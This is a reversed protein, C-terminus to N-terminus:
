AGVNPLRRNYLFRIAMAAVHLMETDLKKDLDFLIDLDEQDPNGAFCEIHEIRNLAAQTAEGMEEAVVLIQRAADSPWGPHKMEALHLERFIAGVILDELASNRRETM